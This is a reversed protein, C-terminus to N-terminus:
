GVHKRAAGAMARTPSSVLLTVIAPLGLVLTFATIAKVIYDLTEASPAGPPPFGVSGVLTPGHGDWRPPWTPPSVDGGAHMMHAGHV